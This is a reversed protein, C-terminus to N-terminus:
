GEGAWAIRREYGRENRDSSIMPNVITAAGSTKASKEFATPKSFSAASDSCATSEATFTVCALRVSVALTTVSSRM